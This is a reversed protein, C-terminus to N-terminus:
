DILSVQERLVVYTPSHVILRGHADEEVPNCYLVDDDLSTILCVPPYAEYFGREAFARLDIIEVLDDVTFARKRMM